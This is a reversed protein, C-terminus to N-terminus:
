RAPSQIPTFTFDNSQWQETYHGLIWQNSTSQNQWVQFGYHDFGGHLEITIQGPEVYIYSPDLDKLELPIPMEKDERLYVAKNTRELLKIAQGALLDLRQRSASQFAGYHVKDYKYAGWIRPIFPCCVAVALILLGGLCIAIIAVWKKKV